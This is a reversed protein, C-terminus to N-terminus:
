RLEKQLWARAASWERKVTVVSIGLVAATEDHSLGVFYRLEVIQAARADMRKLRDLAENVALLEEADPQTAPSADELDIERMGGGRKDRAAARAHDVLLNRMIQAAVGFFHARNQWSRDQERALRLFAEHLLATPQLTHDPPEGAMYRAAVGRLDDYILPILRNLAGDEGERWSELLQTIEEREPV